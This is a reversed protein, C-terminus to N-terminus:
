SQSVEARTSDNAAVQFIDGNEDPVFITFNSSLYKLENERLHGITTGLTGLQYMTKYQEMNTFSYQGYESEGISVPPVGGLSKIEAYVNRMFNHNMCSSYIYIDNLLTERPFKEKRKSIAGAIEKASIFDTDVGMPKDGSVIGNNMYLGDASGHGDFMFTMPPPTTMIAELTKKKVEALNAVTPKDSEPALNLLSGPPMPGISKKLEERNDERDFRKEGKKYPGEDKDWVEGNSLKAVNRGTFIQMKGAREQVENFKKMKEELTAKDPLTEIGQYFLSRGFRLAQEVDKKEMNKYVELSIPLSPDVSFDRVNMYTTQGHRKIMEGVFDQMDKDLSIYWKAFKIRGRFSKREIADKQESTANDPTGYYIKKMMEPHKKQFEIATKVDEKKNVEQWYVKYHRREIGLSALDKAYEKMRGWEEATFGYEAGAMSLLDLYDETIGGKKMDTVAMAIDTNRLKFEKKITVANSIDISKKIALLKTLQHIDDITEGNKPDFNDLLAMFYAFIESKEVGEERLEKITKVAIEADVNRKSVEIIDKIGIIEKLPLFKKIRDFNPHAEYGLHRIWAVYDENIGIKVLPEIRQLAVDLAVNNLWFYAADKANINKEKAKEIYSFMEEIRELKGDRDIRYLLKTADEDEIGLQRTRKICKLVFFPDLADGHMLRKEEIDVGARKLADIKLENMKEKVLMVGDFANSNGGWDGEANLNLNPFDSMIDKLIKQARAYLQKAKGIGDGKRPDDIMRSCQMLKEKAQELQAVAKKYEKMM